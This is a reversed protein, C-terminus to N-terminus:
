AKRKKKSRKGKSVNSVAKSSKSVNKSAAIKKASRKKSAVSKKPSRKKSVASKKPSRKKSAVSKKASRKKSSVKRKKSSAHKKVVKHKKSSVQSSKKPLRKKAGGFMQSNFTGSGRGPTAGSGSGRGLESELGRDSGRTRNLERLRRSANSTNDDRERSSETERGRPFEMGREQETLPGPIEADTDDYKIETHKDIAEVNFPALQTVPCYEVNNPPVAPQQGFMQDDFERSFRDRNIDPMERDRFADDIGRNRNIDPRERLQADDLDDDDIKSDITRTQPTPPQAM